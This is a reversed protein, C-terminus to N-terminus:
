SSIKAHMIIACYTDIIVIITQTINFSIHVNCSFANWYRLTTILVMEHHQLSVKYSKIIYIGTSVYIANVVRITNDEKLSEVARYFLANLNEQM